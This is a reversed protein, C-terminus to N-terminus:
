GMAAGGAESGGGDMYDGAQGIKQLLTGTVERGLNFGM